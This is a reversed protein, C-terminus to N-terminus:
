GCRAAFSIRTSPATSLRNSCIASLTHWRGPLRPAPSAHVPIRHRLPRRPRRRSHRTRRAGLGLTASRSDIVSVPILDAVSRAALEASQMTASLAGSLSITVVSSAGDAALARYTQEFQGPAPAATEPLTASAACEAWFEAVSLDLRDVYEQGDIRITLPVIEIGFEDAVAQPLDCASDTVIRVRNTSM